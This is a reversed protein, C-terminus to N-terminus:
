HVIGDVGCARQAAGQAVLAELNQWFVSSFINWFLPFQKKLKVLFGACVNTGNGNSIKTMLCLWVM